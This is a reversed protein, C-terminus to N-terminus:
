KGMTIEWPKALAVPPQSNVGAYGGKQKQQLFRPLINALCVCFDWFISSSSSSSFRKLRTRSQAVGFVAAWWAGGDQELSGLFISPFISPLLLLNSPMVSKISILKLLSRSNTFSLSAQRAATWPNAFLWVLSFSQVSSFRAQNRPQFILRM